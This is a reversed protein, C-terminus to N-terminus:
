IIGPSTFTLNVYRLPSEYLYHKRLIDNYSFTTLEKSEIHLTLNKDRIFIEDLLNDTLSVAINEYAEDNLLNVTWILEGNVYETKQSFPRLDSIHMKDAYERPILDMIVGHIVSGINVSYKLDDSKFFKIKLRCLM